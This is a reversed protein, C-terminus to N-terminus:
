LFTSFRQVVRSYLKMFLQESKVKTFHAGNVAENISSFLLINQGLYTELDSPLIRGYKNLHKAIIVILCDAAIEELDGKLSTPIMTKIDDFFEKKSINMTYEEIPNNAPIPRPIPFNLTDNDVETIPIEIRKGKLTFSIKASRM